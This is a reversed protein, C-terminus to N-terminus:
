MINGAVSGDICVRIDYSGASTPVWTVTYTGDKHSTVAMCDVSRCYSIICYM